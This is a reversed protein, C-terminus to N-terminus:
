DDVIFSLIIVQVSDNIITIIEACSISINNFNLTIDETASVVRYKEGEAFIGFPCMKAAIMPPKINPYPARMANPQLM